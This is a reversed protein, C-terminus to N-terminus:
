FLLVGNLVKYVFRTYRSPEGTFFLDRGCCGGGGVTVVVPM